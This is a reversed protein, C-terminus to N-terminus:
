PIETIRPLREEGTIKRIKSFGQFEEGYIFSIPENKVNYDEDVVSCNISIYENEGTYSSSKGYANHIHGCVHYKLNYLRTYINQHLWKEGLIDTNTPIEKFLRELQKETNNFAWGGFKKSNPTGWINIGAVEVGSNCLYVMEPYKAVEEKVISEWSELMRDHNGAIIIKCEAPHSHFWKLFDFVESMDYGSTQIDGAFILINSDIPLVVERHKGHTDSFCTIKIV